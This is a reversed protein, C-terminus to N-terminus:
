DAAGQRQWNTEVEKKIVGCIHDTYGLAGARNAGKDRAIYGIAAAVMQMSANLVVEASYGDAVVNFAQMLQAMEPPYDAERTVAM